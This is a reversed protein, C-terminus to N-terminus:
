AQVSVRSIHNEDKWVHVSKDIKHELENVHSIIGVLRNDGALNQLVNIATKLSEDDLSGFGEDVFMTDLQVGGASSQVEDALGLALSLSALFSEGGSLTRVERQRGSAHDVVNLDLGSHSRNNSAEERRVLEYQGNSLISFRINARRVIRDFYSAQVYTELMVKEKGSLGGNVTKSMNELWIRKRSSEQLDTALRGIKKLLSENSEMRTKANNCKANAQEYAFKLSDRDAELKQMDYQPAGELRERCSIARGQLEKIKGDCANFAKTAVELAMKLSNLQNKLNCIETEAAAKSEFALSKQLEAIEAGRQEISATAGSVMNSLDVNRNQCAELEKRKAPLLNEGISKRRTDAATAKFLEQSLETNCARNEDFEKRIREKAKEIPCDGFLEALVVELQTRRETVTANAASALDSKKKRDADLEAVRAKLTELETQTPAALSKCAKHPHSTSGCVPCACGEVLNEALIGAQESFFAKEKLRYEGDAEDFFTQATMFASQRESLETSARELEVVRDGVSKLDDRRRKLEEIRNEIGAKLSGTDGLAKLDEELGQIEDKLRKESATGIELAGRNTHLAQEMRQLDSQKADLVNYQELSNEITTVRSQLSEREPLKDEEAKKAMQLPQLKEQETKLMGQVAELDSRTKEVEEAKGLATNAAELKTSMEKLSNAFDCTTKRDEAIILDLLERVDEWEAITNEAANRKVADLREACVSNEDCQIGSVHTGAVMELNGCKNKADIAATRIADQLDYFKDTKFIKRFIKKREDTSALLVDMFDGQAIMAIQTFQERDIGVIEAIAEAVEKDKSLVRSYPKVRGDEAPYRLEVSAPEKTFGEGRAKPRDYEPNRKICYERGAYEFTLEVFTPTSPHANLCRFLKTNNRTDGSATGFLAYTIADFITTKGAGTDGSILYLGCDGLQDLDIVTREAYPGFASIVLRTPRM